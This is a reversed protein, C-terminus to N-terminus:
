PGITWSCDSTVHIWYGEGSLLLDTEDLYGLRYPDSASYGMVMDYPIGSLSESVSRNTMSPYSVLNWGAKLQIEQADFWSLGFLSLTVNEETVNIWYGGSASLQNLDSLWFPAKKLHIEWLKSSENYGMVQDYKGDIPRLVDALSWNTENTPISILNWGKHLTINMIPNTPEMLPLRDYNPIWPIEYETDGYGDSGPQDQLEGSYIDKGTYDSWYNGGWSYNGYWCNTFDEDYAQVTNEIFDNRIIINNGAELRFGEGNFSVTNFLFWGDTSTSGIGRNENQAIVNEYVFCNTSNRLRLGNFNKRLSNEYIDSDDSMYLYVAEDCFTVDNRYFNCNGSYHCEIGQTFNTVTNDYVETIDSSDIYIGWIGNSLDNGTVDCRYCFSELYLSIQPHNKLTNNSVAIYESSHLYIGRSEGSEVVCNEVTGNGANRIQINANQYYTNFMGSANHVRCDRIVFYDTTNGVYIGCGENTADINWKEIVWPNDSSGNGGTVGHNADFDVNSNIRIPIFNIYEYADEFQEFPIMLPYNDVAGSTGSLIFNTDGMGDSGSIDQGPGSFIDTGSYNDWYNGGGPYGDDWQHSGTDYGHVSNNLFDNHYIRTGSGGLIRLGYNNDQFVNEEILGDNMSSADIGQSQTGRIENGIIVLRDGEQVKIGDNGTCNIVNNVFTNDHSKYLDFGRGSCNEINNGYFSGNSSRSLDVFTDVDWAQNNSVNTFHSYSISFATNNKIINNVATTRNCMFFMCAGMMKKGFFNDHITCDDSFALQFLRYGVSLNLNKATMNDSEVLILQGADLPVDMGSVNKRYYIANGGLTNSDDIDHTNWYKRYGGQLQIGGDSFTNNNVTANMSSIILLGQYSAFDCGVSSINESFYFLVGGSYHTQFSTNALSINVSNSIQAEYYNYGSFTCSEFAIGHSSEAYVGYNGDLFTTNEVAGNESLYLFLGANQAYPGTNLTANRLTCDKILFHDTTNGVYICNGAHTGDIDHGQILWPNGETGNGGTVGHEEDFDANSNIRIPKGPIYGPEVYEMFPYRDYQSNPPVYQGTDGFGDGGPYNQNPGSKNDWGSYDDWYNGGLPYPRNWYNGYNCNDSAHSSCNLFNNQYIENYESDVLLISGNPNSSVHNYKIINEWCDVYLYIGVDNLYVENTSLTNNETLDLSGMFAYSTFYIGYNQNFSVNNELITNNNSERFVMGASNEQVTNNFVVNGHCHTDLYLGYSNKVLRNSMIENNECNSYLYIGYDNNDFLDNDEIRNENSLGTLHIGHDFNSSANNGIIVNGSSEELSVAGVSGMGYAGTEQVLNHLVDINSSGEIRIGHYEAGIIENNRITANQVLNLEISKNCSYISSHEIIANDSLLFVGTDAYHITCNDIHLHSGSQSDVGGWKQGSYSPDITLNAGSCTLNSGLDLRLPAGPRFYVTEGKSIDLTAGNQLVLGASDTVQYIGSGLDNVEAYNSALLSMTWSGSPVDLGHANDTSWNIVTFSGILLITVLFVVIKEEKM